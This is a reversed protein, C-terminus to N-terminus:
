FGFDLYLGLVVNKQSKFNLGSFDDGESPAGNMQYSVGLALEVDKGIPAGFRVGVDFLYNVSSKILELGEPGGNRIDVEQKMYMAAGVGLHEDLHFGQFNQRVKLGFELNAMNLRDTRIDVGQVTSSRGGFSDINVGLYWGTYVWSNSRYLDSYQLQLGIGGSILDDWKVGQFAEGTPLSNRLGVSFQSYGDRYERENRAEQQAFASASLSLAVALTLAAAKM